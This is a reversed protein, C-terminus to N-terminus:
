VIGRRRQTASVEGGCVFGLRYGRAKYSCLSLRRSTYNRSDLVAELHKKRGCVVGNFGAKWRLLCGFANYMLPSPLRSPYISLAVVDFDYEWHM